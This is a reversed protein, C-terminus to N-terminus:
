IPAELVLGLVNRHGKAGVVLHINMLNITM